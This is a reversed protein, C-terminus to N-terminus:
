FKMDKALTNIGAVLLTHDKRSSSMMNTSNSSAVVIQTVESLAVVLREQMKVCKLM